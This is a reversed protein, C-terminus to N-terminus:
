VFDFGSPAAYYFYQFDFGLAFLVLCDLLGLFFGQKLNRRIAYFYDSIIFVGEGKVLNRLIYASGVKQWGYTVVQFVALGAIIWWIPTNYAHVRFLGSFLSLLTNGTATPAATQAGLLAPYLAFYQSDAKPGTFYAFFCLLPPLFQVLLLLNVSILKWFKRGLLKFFYGLTPTTDEGKEVGRGDRMPNLLRLPGKGKKTSSM